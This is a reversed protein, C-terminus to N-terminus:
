KSVRGFLALRVRSVTQLQVTAECCNASEVDIVADCTSEILVCLMNMTAPSFEVSSNFSLM